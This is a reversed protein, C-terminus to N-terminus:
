SANKHTFAIASPSEKVAFANRTFHRTSIPVLADYGSFQSQTRTKNPDSIAPM